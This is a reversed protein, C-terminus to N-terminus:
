QRRVVTGDDGVIVLTTGNWAVGNYATFTHQDAGWSAGDGSTVIRGSAGVAVYETGTHVVDYLTSSITSTQASWVTGDLSTVIDGSAGM